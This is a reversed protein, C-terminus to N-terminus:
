EDDDEATKAAENRTIQEDRWAQHRETLAQVYEDPAIRQIDQMLAIGAARKGERWYTESSGTFTQDFVGCTTDVQYIFFRRFAPVQMLAKLDEDAQHRRQNDIERIRRQAKENALIGHTRKSM